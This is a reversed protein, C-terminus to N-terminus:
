RNLLWPNGSRKKQLNQIQKESEQETAVVQKAIKEVDVTGAEGDGDIDDLGGDGVRANALAELDKIRSQLEEEKELAKQLAENKSDVVQQIETIETQLTDVEKKFVSSSKIKEEM